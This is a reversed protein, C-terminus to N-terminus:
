KPMRRILWFGWVAYRVPEVRSHFVVYAGGILKSEKLNWPVEYPPGEDPDGTEAAAGEIPREVPASRQHSAYKSKAPCGKM